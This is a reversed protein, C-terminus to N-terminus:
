YTCFKDKVKIEYCQGQRNRILSIADRYFLSRHVRAVLDLSKFCDRTVIGHIHPGKVDVAAWVQQLIYLM